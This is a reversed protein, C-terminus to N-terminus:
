MVFSANSQRMRDRRFSPLHMLCVASTDMAQVDSKEPEMPLVPLKADEAPLLVPPMLPAPLAVMEAASTTAAVSVKTPIAKPTGM